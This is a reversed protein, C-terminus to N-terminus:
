GCVSHGVKVIMSEAFKTPPSGNFLSDFSLSRDMKSSVALDCNARLRLQKSGHGRLNTAVRWFIDVLLEWLRLDLAEVESVKFSSGIM